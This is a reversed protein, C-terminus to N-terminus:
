FCQGCHRHEQELCCRHHGKDDDFRNLEHLGKWWRCALCRVRSRIRIHRASRVVKLTATRYQAKWLIEHEEFPRGDLESLVQMLDGITSGIELTVRDQYHPWGAYGLDMRKDWGVSIRVCVRFPFSTLRMSRWSGRTWVKSKQRTCRVDMREVVAPIMCCGPNWVSYNISFILGATDIRWDLGDHGTNFRGWSIINGTLLPSIVNYNPWEIPNHPNAPPDLSMTRRLAASEAVFYHVQKSVSQVVFLDRWPLHLLIAELLEPIAIVKLARGRNPRCKEPSHHRFTAM